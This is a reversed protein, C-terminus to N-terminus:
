GAQKKAEGHKLGERYERARERLEKMTTVGAYKDAAPKQGYAGMAALAGATGSIIIGPLPEYVILPTAALSTVGAAYALRRRWSGGGQKALKSKRRM